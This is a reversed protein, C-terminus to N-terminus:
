GPLKGGRVFDFNDAPKVRYSIGVQEGVGSQMRAFPTRFQAGGLPAGASRVAAPDYSGRPYTVWLGAADQRLNQEGFQYVAGRSTHHWDAVEGSWLKEPKLASLACEGARAGITTCAALMIVFCPRGARWMLPIRAWEIRM